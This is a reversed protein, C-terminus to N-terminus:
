PIYAGLQFTDVQPGRESGDDLLRGFIDFGIVFLQYTGTKPKDLSVVERGDVTAGDDIENGDPDIVLRAKCLTGPYEVFWVRRCSTIRPRPLAVM